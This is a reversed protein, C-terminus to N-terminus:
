TYYLNIMYQIHNYQSTNRVFVPIIHESWNAILVSRYERYPQSSYGIHEYRVYLESPLSEALIVERSSNGRIPTYILNYKIFLQASYIYIYQVYIIVEYIYIDIYNSSYM